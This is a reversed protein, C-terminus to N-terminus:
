KSGKTLGKLEVLVYSTGKGTTGVKSVLKKTTLYTLDRSATPKSAEFLQQYQANTITKSIQLYRIAKVQRENLSMDRLEADSYGSAFMIVKFFDPSSNDFDPPPQKHMELAEAMRITGTGWREIIQTEYFCDAILRNPPLSPHEKFLKEPSLAAPLHGANWIELRDDYLRISVPSSAMYDRHCIANAIAERLSALPYDWDEERELLGGSLKNKGSLVSKGIIFKRSMREQLWKMARDLQQFLTGDFERDDLIDTASKFRGAKIYATSCFRKPDKGLLLVAARTPTGDQLLHMKELLSRSDAQAPLNRRGARRLRDFFDVIAADDLDDFTATADKRQDWGGSEGALVQNWFERQKGPQNDLRTKNSGVRIYALSEFKVPQEKVPRICLLVIPKNNYELCNFEFHPVPQLRQSLWMELAQNGHKTKAPNFTTGLVAKTDDEIGWIMYAVEKRQIVASNALASIYEGVMKSDFNNHKFEVWECEDSAALLEAVLKSINTDPM